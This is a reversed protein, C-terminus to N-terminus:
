NWKSGGKKKRPTAQEAVAIVEVSRVLEVVEMTEATINWEIADYVTSLANIVMADLVTTSLQLSILHATKQLTEMSSYQMEM